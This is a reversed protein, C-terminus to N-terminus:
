SRHLGSTPPRLFLVDVLFLAALISATVMATGTSVGLLGSVVTAFAYLLPILALVLDYRSLSPLRRRLRNPATAGTVDRGMM